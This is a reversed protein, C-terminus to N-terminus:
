KERRWEIPPGAHLISRRKMGPLVEIAPKVGVLFPKAALIRHIGEKNASEIKAKIDDGAAAM